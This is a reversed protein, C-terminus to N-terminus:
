ALSGAEEKKEQWVLCLVRDRHCKMVGRRGFIIRLSDGGGWQYFSEAKWSHNKRPLPRGRKRYRRKRIFLRGRTPMEKGKKREWNNEWGKKERERFFGGRKLRLVTQIDSGGKKAM